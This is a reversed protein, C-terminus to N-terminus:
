ASSFRQPSLAPPAPAPRAPRHKKNKKKGSDREGPPSSRLVAAAAELLALPEPPAARPGPAYPSPSGLAARARALRRVTSPRYAPATFTRPPPGAPAAAPSPSNSPSAHAEKSRAEAEALAEEIRNCRELLALLEEQSQEEPSLPASGPPSPRRRPPPTPAGGAAEVAVGLRELRAKLDAVERERRVRLGQLHQMRRQHEEGGEAEAEAEAEAEEQWGGGEALGQARAALRDLAAANVGAAAGMDEGDVRFAVAPAAPGAGDDAARSSASSADSSSEPMKDKFQAPFSVFTRVCVPKTQRSLSIVPLFNKWAGHPPM